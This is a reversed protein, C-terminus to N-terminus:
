VNPASISIGGFQSPCDNDALRRCTPIPPVECVCKVCNSSYSTGQSLEDGLHMTMNGFRCIKHEEDSVDASKAHNHIVTDGTDQCRFAYSCDKQPNQDAYFMPACKEHISEANRFLPSCYDRNPKKCFPEVDEGTYGPMCICSLDPDSISSFHQGEHYTVGDVVCTAIEDEKSYCTPTTDPCCKDRDHKLFCNEKPTIFACDVAACIFDAVDRYSRCTCGIDCPNADEPKLKEGLSYENGNAYCKDRSLNDLHSCNYSEACCDGSNAYVPTCGIAEYYRLPGPCKTKDCVERGTVQSVVLFMLLACKQAASRSNGRGAM